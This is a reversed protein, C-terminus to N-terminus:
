GLIQTYSNQGLYNEGSIVTEHLSQMDGNPKIVNVEIECGIGLTNTNVGVLKVKLWKNNSPTGKLFSAYTGLRHSVIDPFGDNNFDGSAVAFTHQPSQPLDSYSQFFPMM